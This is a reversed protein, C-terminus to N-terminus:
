LRGVFMEYEKDLSDDANHVEAFASMSNEGLRLVIYQGEGIAVGDASYFMKDADIIRILYMGQGDEVIAQIKEKSNSDAKAINATGWSTTKRYTEIDPLIWVDADPIENLVGIECTKITETKPEKEKGCSAMSFVMLLVALVVLTKKM